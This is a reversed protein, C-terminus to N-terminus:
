AAEAKEGVTERRTPRLIADVLASRSLEGLFFQKFEAATRYSVQTADIFRGFYETRLTVIIRADFELRQFGRLFRFFCARNEFNEESPNLTLVEEAQDVILVLTQPIIEAIRRLSEILADENKALTLYAEWTEAGLLARSLDLKCWGVPTRVQFPESIFLFVQRAIHDIPAETCRIFLAEDDAGALKLFLYGAGEEEMTPILGARLFSSKGCDTSGHLLLVRTQPHALLGACTAVDDDRGALLPRDEPRFYNLGRYPSAPWGRRSDSGLTM